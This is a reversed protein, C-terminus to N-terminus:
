KQSGNFLHQVTIPTPSMILDASLVTELEYTTGDLCLVVIKSIITLLSSLILIMAFFHMYRDQADM